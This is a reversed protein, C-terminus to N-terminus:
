VLYKGAFPIHRVIIAIGWSGFFMIAFMWNTDILAPAYARCYIFLLYHILYIGFSYRALSSIIGSMCGGSKIRLLLAFYLACLCFTTFSKNNAALRLDFTNFPHLALFLPIAIGFTITAITFIVNRRNSGRFNEAETEAQQTSKNAAPCDREIAKAGFMPYRTLYYGMIFYGMFNYFMVLFNWEENMGMFRHMWPIIGAAFWLLLYYEIHRKSASRIWPSIVPMMLYAGVIVFIFWFLVHFPSVLMWRTMFAAWHGDTFGFSYSSWVILQSWFIFPIIVRVARRGLFKRYSGEVPLLLAGSLAFFLVADASVLTCKLNDWFGPLVLSHDLVVLFIAVARIVDFAFIRGSGASQGSISKTQSDITHITM